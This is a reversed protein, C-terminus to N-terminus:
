QSFLNVRLPRRFKQARNLQRRLTEVILGILAYTVANALILWYFRIGFHFYFGVFVVPQTLRALAWVITDASTTPITRAFAYLAWCAAVLFGASGWIAIRRKM